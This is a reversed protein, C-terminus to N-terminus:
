RVRGCHLVLDRNREQPNVIALVKLTKGNGVVRLQTGADFREVVDSRYRMSVQYLVTAETENVVFPQEDIAAHGTGFAPWTESAGGTEDEVPVGEQLEVAHRLQGARLPIAIGPM